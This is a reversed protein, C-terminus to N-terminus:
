IARVGLIRVGLTGVREEVRLRDGIRPLRGYLGVCVQVMGGLAPDYFTADRTCGKSRHVAVVTVVESVPTAANFYIAAQVIAIM